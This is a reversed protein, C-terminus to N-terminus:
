RLDSRTVKLWGDLTASAAGARRKAPQEAQRPSATAQTLERKATPGPPSPTCDDARGLPAHDAAAEGASSHAAQQEPKFFRFTANMRRTGFQGGGAREFKDPKIIEHKHTKQCAGGMVVLDGHALHLMVTRGQGKERPALRFRRSQGWSLSFIPTGAVLASDDDSHLGVYHSQDADYFNLLSGVWVSKGGNVRQQLKAVTDAVGQIIPEASM